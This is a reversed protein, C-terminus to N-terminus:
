FLSDFDVRSFIELNGGRTANWIKGDNKLYEENAAVMSKKMMHIRPKSWLDGPELYDPVFHNNETGNSIYAGNEDIKVDDPINYNFDMGILYIERIGMFFALQLLTYTVTCGAYICELANTSFKPPEPYNFEVDWLREWKLNYYIATKIRPMFFDLIDPLIKVTNDINKIENWHNRAFSSDELSYYTPRWDTYKFALYIKNSSFTIENKLKELDSIKLSPGNGIIFCRERHINKLSALKPNYKVPLGIKYLNRLFKEIIRHKYNALIILILHKRRYWLIPNILKLLHTM